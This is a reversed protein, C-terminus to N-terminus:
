RTAGVSFGAKGENQDESFGWASRMAEARQVFAEAQQFRETVPGTSLDGAFTAWESALTELALAAAKMAHNEEMSLFVDIEEDEFNSSDPRPGANRKSDGILLRIKATTPKAAHDYSFSM